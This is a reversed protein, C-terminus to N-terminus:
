NGRDCLQESYRTESVSEQTVNLVFPVIDGDPNNWWGGGFNSWSRWFASGILVQAMLKMILMWSIIDDLILAKYDALVANIYM